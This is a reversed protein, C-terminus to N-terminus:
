LILQNISLAEAAIAEPVQERKFAAVYQDLRLSTLMACVDSSTLSDLARGTYRAAM